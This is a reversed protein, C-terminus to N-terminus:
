SRWLQVSVVDASHELVRQCMLLLSWLFWARGVGPHALHQSQCASPPLRRHLLGVPFVSMNAHTFTKAPFHPTEPSFYSCHSAALHFSLFYLRAELIGWYTIFRYIYVRSGCSSLYSTKGGAEEEQVSATPVSAATKNM